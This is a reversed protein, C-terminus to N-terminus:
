TGETGRACSAGREYVKEAQRAEMRRDFYLGPPPPIKETGAVDEADVESPTPTRGFNRRCYKARRNGGCNTCMGKQFWEQRAERRATWSTGSRQGAEYGRDVGRCFLDVQTFSQLNRM